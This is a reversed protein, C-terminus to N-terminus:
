YYRSGYFDGVPLGSVPDYEIEPEPDPEQAPAPREVYAYKGQGFIQDHM